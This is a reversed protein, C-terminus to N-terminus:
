YTGKSEAAISHTYKNSSTEYLNYKMQLEAQKIVLETAEPIEDPPYKYKKLLRKILSRMNAKADNRKYWDPTKNESILQILNKAMERLVDSQYHEKVLEPRALADYFAQEEPSLRMDIGESIASEIEKAIDIMQTILVDIDEAQNYREVINKLKESFFGSRVINTQEFWKIKDDILKKLIIAAVNRRKMAMIKELNEVSLLSKEKKASISVVEDGDKIIAQEIMATIKRKFDEVDPMGDREVKVIFSKVATFFSVQVRVTFDLATACINYASQLRAVHKLFVEKAREKLVHEVGDQILEFREKPTANMYISFDFGHFMGELIEVETMLIEKAKEIETIGNKDRSTYTNLAEKLYKSLGIYDVILGAQKDKYVRNVRAIAQMLNHEKMIKDIYMTDLSPVDFGTLWMDVVIVVKLESNDDKFQNALTQRHQKNGIIDRMEQNTDKNSDSLVLGIQSGIEPSKEKILQYMRYAIKRSYAVIMAKGKLMDKRIAYHTLIDDVVLNLRDEDGIVAEMTVLDKKLKEIKEPTLGQAEISAVEKDIQDLIGEDLHVKALRNEYHLDVTAGDLKAQTMDYVDILEGFVGITSKDNSDVPTGTFGIFTANPLADRLYKAYGYVLEAELTKKDIKIDPDIGYQSRHAEDAIVIIDHRNSLLGTEETFKQITTFFIGGISRNELLEILNERSEARVPAQRLYEAASSFTGHIQEDLDNRDTVVVITPNNLRTILGASLFVMSFSKGSGQTHWVVGGRKDGDVARVVSNIAKNMGFYQHYGSIIKAKGGAFFSFNRIVDLLREKHLLGKMLTGIQAIHAEDVIPSHSDVQKWQMYRDYDATISGFRANVGDSIISFANYHFLPKIIDQYTKIQLYGDHITADERVASKLEIVVLPLGNVILVVDPRKEAKHIVTFQNIAIFSNNNPHAFDIVKVIRAPVDDGYVEIRVGEILYRHFQQNASVLSADDIYLLKRVAAEIVESSLTPNIVYLAERLEEELVVTHYDRVLDYGNQVKYNLEDRLLELVVSELSDETFM